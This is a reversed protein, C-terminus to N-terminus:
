ISMNGLLADTGMLTLGSVGGLKQYDEPDLFFKREIADKPLMQIDAWLNVQKEAEIAEQKFTEMRKKLANVSAMSQGAMLMHHKLIEFQDLGSVVKNFMEKDMHLLKPVPIAEVKSDNVDDLMDFMFEKAKDRNLDQYRGEAVIGDKKGKKKDIVRDEFQSQIVYESGYLSNVSSTINGRLYTDQHDEYGNHVEEDNKILERVTSFFQQIGYDFYGTVGEATPNKKGELRAVAEEYGTLDLGRYLDYASQMLEHFREINLGRYKTGRYETMLKEQEYASDGLVDGLGMKANGNKDEYVLAEILRHMVRIFAMCRESKGPNKKTLAEILPTAMTSNDVDFWSKMKEATMVSPAGEIAKALEESCCKPETIENMYDGAVYVRRGEHATLKDYRLKQFEPSTKKVKEFFSFEKCGFSMGSEETEFGNIRWVPPQSTQDLKYYVKLNEDSLGTEGSLMHLMKLKQYDRLAEPTMRVEYKTKGNRVMNKFSSYSEGESVRTYVASCIKYGKGSKVALKRVDSETVLDEVDLFKALESSALRNKEVSVAGEAGNQKKYGVYDYVEQGLGEALLGKVGKITENTKKLVQYIEPDLKKDLPLDSIKAHDNTQELKAFYSKYDMSFFAIYRKMKEEKKYGSLNSLTDKMTTFLELSLPVATTEDQRIESIRRDLFAEFDDSLLTNMREVKYTVGESEVLRDVAMEDETTTTGFLEEVHEETLENSFADEKSLELVEIAGSQTLERLNNGRLSSGNDKEVSVAVLNFSDKETQLLRKVRRVRKMRDKGTGWKAQGAEMKAEIYKDCAEIALDFAGPVQEKIMDILKQDPVFFNEFKTDLLNQLYALSEKVKTMEASDSNFFNYWKEDKMLLESEAKLIESKAIMQNKFDATFQTEEHTKVAERLEDDTRTSRYHKMEEPIEFAASQNQKQEQKNLLSDM